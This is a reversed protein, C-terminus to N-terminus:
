QWNGINVVVLAGDRSWGQHREAMVGGERMLLWELIAMVALNRQRVQVVMRLDRLASVDPRQNFAAKHRERTDPDATDPLEHEAELMQIKASIRNAEEDLTGKTLAIAQIRGYEETDAQTARFLPDRTTRGNKSPDLAPLGADQREADTIPKRGDPHTQQGPLTYLTGEKLDIVRAATIVNNIGPDMGVYHVPRGAATAEASKMSWQAINVRLSLTADPPM